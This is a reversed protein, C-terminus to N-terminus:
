EGGGGGGAFAAEGCVAGRLGIFVIASFIGVSGPIYKASPSPSSASNTRRPKRVRVAERGELAEPISVPRIAEIRSRLRSSIAHIEGKMGAYRGEFGLLLCLLYAELLDALGPSDTRKRFSELRDFFMEGAVAEGFMEVNLTKKAWAHRAPDDSTLIVEDLFAVVAFETDNIDEPSHGIATAERRVDKLASKMRARFADSDGIQQRRSQLRVIGTFFGQYLNALSERKSRTSKEATWERSQERAANGEMTAPFTM